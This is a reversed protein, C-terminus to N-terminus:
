LDAMKKQWKWPLFVYLRLRQKMYKSSSSRLKCAWFISWAGFTRKMNQPVGCFAEYDGVTVSKWVLCLAAFHKVMEVLWAKESKVRHRLVSWWRWRDRRKLSQVIGCLSHPLLTTETNMEYLLKLEAFEKQCFSSKEFFPPINRQRESHSRLWVITPRCFSRKKTEKGSSAADTIITKKKM